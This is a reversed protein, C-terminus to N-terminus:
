CKKSNTCAARLENWALFTARSKVSNMVKPRRVRPVCSSQESLRGIIASLIETTRDM